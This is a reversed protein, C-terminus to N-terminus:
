KDVGYSIAKAFMEGKMTLKWEDDLYELELFQSRYRSLTSRKYKQLIEPNDGQKIRYVDFLFREQQESFRKIDFEPFEVIQDSDKMFYVIRSKHKFHIKAFNHAYMLLYSVRKHSATVDTIINRNVNKLYTQLFTDFMEIPRNENIQIYHIDIKHEFLKRKQGVDRRITREFEKFEKTNHSMAYIYMRDVYRDEMYHDVARKHSGLATILTTNIKRIEQM